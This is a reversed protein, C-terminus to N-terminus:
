PWSVSYHATLFLAACQTALSPAPQLFEITWASYDDYYTNYVVLWPEPGQMLTWRIGESDQERRYHLTGDPGELRWADTQDQWVPQFSVLTDMLRCEWQHPQERWRQQISGSSEGIRLDWQSWDGDFGWRARLMGSYNEATDYLIWDRPDDEYATEFFHIPQAAIHAIGLFCCLLLRLM